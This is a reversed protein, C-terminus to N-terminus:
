PHNLGSISRLPDFSTESVMGLQDNTGPKCPYGPTAALM